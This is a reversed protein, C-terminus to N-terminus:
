FQGLQSLLSDWENRSLTTSTAFDVDQPLREILQRAQQIVGLAKPRDKQRRWCHYIQVLAELMYPENQYLTSVNSFSQRADEYRGLEFLVDGGLMFCNRLTARDLEDGSNALTIEDRVEEFMKRAAELHVNAEARAQEKENVTNAQRLRELPESAAHRHAMAILYRAGRSQPDDTYRKVAEELNEIAEDHREAEALLRGLEFKSDRWEPSSPALATRTLNYRLLEEAKEFNHIGRYAQACVLRAKYSSADTEHFELCEEFLAIATEDDGRALYAEGLRLLVIANRQVPENRIYREYVRIAEHYAQGRQYTEAATWLDDTFNRTAFRAEALQEYAVGAERLRRRGDRLQRKKGRPGLALADTILKDGWRQLADARMKLSENRGLLRTLHDSWSRHSNTIGHEHDLLEATRWSSAPSRIEKLALLLNSRYILRARGDVNSRAATRSWRRTSTATRRHQWHEGEALDGRGDGSPRHRRGNVVCIRALM